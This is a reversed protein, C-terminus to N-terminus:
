DDTTREVALVAAECIARTPSTNRVDVRGGAGFWLKAFHEDSGGCCRGVWPSLRLEVLRGIVEGCCAWCKTPHWQCTCGYAEAATDMTTFIIEAVLDNLEGDPIARLQEPTHKTKM